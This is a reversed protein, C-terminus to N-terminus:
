SNGQASENCIAHGLHGPAEHVHPVPLAWGNDMGRSDSVLVQCPIFPILSNELLDAVNLGRLLKRFTHNEDLILIIIM